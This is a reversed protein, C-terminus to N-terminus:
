DGNMMDFGISVFFGCLGIGIIGSTAWLAELLRHGGFDFNHQAVIVTVIGYAILYIAAALVAWLPDGTSIRKM